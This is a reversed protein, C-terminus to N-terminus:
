RDGMAPSGAGAKYAASRGWFTDRLLGAGLIILILPWFSVLIQLLGSLFGAHDFAYAEVARLTVLVLAPLMGPSHEPSTGAANAIQGAVADLNALLILFGLILLITGAISKLSKPAAELAAMSAEQPAIEQGWALM